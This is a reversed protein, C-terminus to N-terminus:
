GAGRFPPELIVVFRHGSLAAHRPKTSIALPEHLSSSAPASGLQTSPSLAHPAEHPLPVGHSVPSCQLPPSHTFSHTDASRPPAAIAHGPPITHVPAPMHTAPLEPLPPPPAPPM